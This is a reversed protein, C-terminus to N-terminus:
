IQDGYRIMQTGNAIPTKHRLGATFPQAFRIRTHFPLFYEKRFIFITPTHTHLIISNCARRHYFLIM